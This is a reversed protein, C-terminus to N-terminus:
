QYASHVASIDQRPPAGFVRRYERSFQSPSEYGVRFAADAADLHDGLMLRRAEQLRLRKQFQLPTMATVGKFHLHFASASMGVKDALSEIRLPESYHDKLWRIARAIRSAPANALAIQRLRLGQPGTLVRYTIERLVLPAMLRIDQPSEVLNVLRTVADLLQPAVPSVALGRETPGSSSINAGDALLEGVVAPDISIRIGIYPDNAEAAVVRADVPLDVSVLLFHAPDLRYSEGALVVEKAGQVVICLCPDYILPTLETPKTFRSLQLEAIVTTVSQDAKSHREVMSALTRTKSIEM